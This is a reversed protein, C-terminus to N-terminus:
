AGAARECGPLAGAGGVLMQYLNATHLKLQFRQGTWMIANAVAQLQAAPAAGSALNNVRLPRPDLATYTLPSLPRM